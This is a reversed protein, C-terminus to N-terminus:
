RELLLSAIYLSSSLELILFSQEQVFLAIDLLTKSFTFVVLRKISTHEIQTCSMLVCTEQSTDVTVVVKVLLVTTDDGGAIYVCSTGHVIVGVANHLVTIMICSGIATLSIITYEINVKQMPKHTRNPNIAKNLQRYILFFDLVNEGLPLSHAAKM